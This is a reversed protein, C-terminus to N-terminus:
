RMESLFYLESVIIGLAFRTNWQKQGTETAIRGYRHHSLHGKLICGLSM